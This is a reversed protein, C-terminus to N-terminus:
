PKKGRFKLLSRKKRLHLSTFDLMVVEPVMVHPHSELEAASVTRLWACTEM